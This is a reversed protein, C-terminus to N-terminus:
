RPLNIVSSTYSIWGFSPGIPRHKIQLELGYVRGVGDNNFREPVTQGEREIMADSKVM